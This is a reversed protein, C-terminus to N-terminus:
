RESAQCTTSTSGAGAAQLALLSVQPHCALAVVATDGRLGDIHIQGGGTPLCSAPGRWCSAHRGPLM